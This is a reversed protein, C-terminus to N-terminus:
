EYRKRETRANIWPAGDVMRSLWRCEAVEIERAHDYWEWCSLRVVLQHVHRLGGSSVCQLIADMRQLGDSEAGDITLLGVSPPLALLLAPLEELPTLELTLATLQRFAALNKRIMPWDYVPTSYVWHPDLNLKLTRLGPLGDALLTLADPTIRDAELQQLSPM